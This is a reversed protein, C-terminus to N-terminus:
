SSVIYVHESMLCCRLMETINEQRGGTVEGGIRLLEEELVLPLVVEQAAQLAVEQVERLGAESSAIGPRLVASEPRCSSYFVVPLVM